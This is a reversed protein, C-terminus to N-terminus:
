SQVAFVINGNLYMCVVHFSIRKMGIEMIYVVLVSTLANKGMSHAIKV